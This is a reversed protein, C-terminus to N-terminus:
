SVRIQEIEFITGHPMSFNGGGTYISWQVVVPYTGAPLPGRAAVAHLTSRGTFELFGPTAAGTGVKVRIACRPPLTANALPNPDTCNASGTVRVVVLHSQGPPITITTSKLTTFRTSSTTKGTPETIVTTTAPTGDITAQGRLVGAGVGAAGVAAVVLALAILGTGRHTM